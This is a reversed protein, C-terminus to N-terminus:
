AGFILVLVLSILVCVGIAALIAILIWFLTTSSTRQYRDADDVQRKVTRKDSDEPTM